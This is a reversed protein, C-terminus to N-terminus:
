LKEAFAKITDLPEGRYSEIDGEDCLKALEPDLPIRATEKVGYLAAIEDVKSEGFIEHKMGCDPCKYYSMNEVIGLIPINMMDAMNISKEVIMEVLEQPSMVIVIGDIPLLQYASLMVDGTGPPMDIFMYDNEGWYVDTWFQQLTGGLIPGRWIVPDTENDLLLNLSMVKIGTKSAVPYVVDEIAKAKETIGFAKPISPGTIDADMLAVKKGASKKSIALLSSVLSKGVGGKGSVIGIVKKIDSGENQELKKPGSYGRQDCNLSCSGCDNNCDPMISERRIDVGKYGALGPLYM